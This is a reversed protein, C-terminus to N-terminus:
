AVYTPMPFIPTLQLQEGIVIYETYSVSQGANHGANHGYMQSNYTESETVLTNLNHEMVSLFPATEFSSTKVGRRLPEKHLASQLWTTM